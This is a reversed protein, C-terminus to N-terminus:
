TYILQTLMYIDSIYPYGLDKLLKRLWVAEKTAAAAAVYESETTSLTVLKQRQSSWSISGNTLLFVYGSISRRTEIDNAYDADSFGVLNFKSGNSKYEIGYSSTDILYECLNTENSEM